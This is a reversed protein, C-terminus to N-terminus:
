CNPYCANQLAIRDNRVIIKWGQPTAYFTGFVKFNKKGSVFAAASYSGMPATFKTSLINIWGCDGTKTLVSLLLIITGKPQTENVITFTATPVIWSTIAHNCNNNSSTTSTPALTPLGTPALFTPALTLDLTPTPELTNTPVPTETSIDTPPLLTNTPLAEQTQAVLTFAAAVSTNQVSLGDITPTAQAGCASILVALLTAYVINKRKM